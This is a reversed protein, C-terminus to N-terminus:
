GTGERDAQKAGQVVLDRITALDAESLDNSGADIIQKAIVEAMEPTISLTPSATLDPGCQPRWAPAWGWVTTNMGNGAMFSQWRKLDAEDTIPIHGVGMTVLRVVQEDEIRILVPQMDEDKEEADRVDPLSARWQDVSWGMLVTLLAWMAWFDGCKSRLFSIHIHWLHSADSSAYEDRVENWGEVETDIDTQGFWEYLILDLRPDKPDRGSADLRRSYLGIRTYNGSQAEPFTWDFASAFNQWWPGTRNITDRISYDNPFNALNYSGPAHFGRKRALIGGLQSTPELERLRQWLWWEAPTIEGPVGTVAFDPRTLVMDGGSLTKWVAPDRIASLSCDGTGPIPGVGYQMISLNAWGGYGARWHPSDDGPYGGQYGANPAAHLFPTLDAVQWGKPQLWWDASYIAIKQGLLGQMTTVYDRLIQETANDECDVIHAMGAPGGLKVMRDYARRASEVGSIRNDLWRYTSIGLGLERSAVAYGLAWAPLVDEQRGRDLQINVIGFGAAKAASLSLPNSREVQHRSVDILFQTV